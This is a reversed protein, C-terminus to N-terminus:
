WGPLERHEALAFQVLQRISADELLAIPQARVAGALLTLATRLSGSVIIGARLGALKLDRALSAANIEGLTAATTRAEDIAAAPAYKKLQQMASVVAPPMGEAGNPRTLCVLAGALVALENPPM